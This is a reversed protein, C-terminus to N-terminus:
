CINLISQLAKLVSLTFQCMLLVGFLEVRPIAVSGNIFCIKSKVFVLASKILGSKVECRLYIVAAYM